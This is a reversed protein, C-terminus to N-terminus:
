TWLMIVIMEFAIIYLQIGKFLKEQILSFKMIQQYESDAM